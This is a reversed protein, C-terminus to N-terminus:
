RSYEDVTGFADTHRLGRADLDIYEGEGRLIRTPSLAQLRITRSTFLGDQDRGITIPLETVDNKWIGAFRDMEVSTLTHTPTAEPMKLRNGLYAEAVAHAYQTAQATAVNCLVAVSVHQDPFRTLFAQYGATSGSHSIERLGNYSGVFLGLGYGHVR